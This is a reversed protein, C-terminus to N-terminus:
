QRMMTIDGTTTLSADMMTTPPTLDLRNGQVCYGSPDSTTSGAPTTNVTVGSTTYTGIESMTQQALDAVCNCGGGGANSCRVASAGTPAGAGAFVQNLQDCTITVGGSTLCSAPFGITESGQLTWNTTYSLDARYSSTGTVTAHATLTATPCSSDGLTGHAAVCSSTITWEGVINGGCSAVMGCSGGDGGGCSVVSASLAMLALSWAVVGNGVNTM